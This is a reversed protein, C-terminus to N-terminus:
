RRHPHKVHRELGLSRLENKVQGLAQQLPVGQNQLESLRNMEWDTLHFTMKLDSGFDVNLTNMKVDGM